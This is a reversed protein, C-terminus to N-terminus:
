VCQEHAFLSPTAFLFANLTLLVQSSFRAEPGANSCVPSESHLHLQHAAEVLESTSTWSHVATGQLTALNLPESSGLTDPLCCFVSGYKLCM